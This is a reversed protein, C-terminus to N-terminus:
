HLRVLSKYLIVIIDKNKCVFTRSILGLLQKGKKSAKICQADAKLNNDKVIVGLDVEQEAVQIKEGKIDYEVSPNSKGMHLVKCKKANFPMQWRDSWNVLELLDSKIANIEKESGVKSLMKSDDAFKWFRNVIKEDIDNIYIIFLIPGLVSGQPVGSTVDTWNSKEGSLVVRQRRGRLWDEIWNLFKGRIGIKHLTYLIRNHPVKDFAKQLDFYLVDVPEKNDM